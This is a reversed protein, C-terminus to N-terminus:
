ETIRVNTVEIGLKRLELRFSASLANDTIAQHVLTCPGIQIISEKGFCTHDALLIVKRASAIM